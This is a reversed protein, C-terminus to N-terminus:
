FLKHLEIYFVQVILLGISYDTCTYVGRMQDNSDGAAVMPYVIDEGSIVIELLYSGDYEFAKDIASELEKPDSVRDATVGLAESLKVFDPLKDSITHSYRKDYFLTQWQRVM